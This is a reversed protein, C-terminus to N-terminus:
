AAGVRARLAAAVRAFLPEWRGWETQRFLRMTPYWRSDDRARLWCWDAAVPLAVWVPVGLAGALHAVATDVTIVLDLAQVAAATDAFDDLREGIATIPFPVGALQESGAGKQLSVLAEDLKGQEKLVVGVSNCAEALLTWEDTHDPDTRVAERFAAKAQPSEDAQHHRWGADFLDHASM